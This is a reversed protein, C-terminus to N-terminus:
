SGQEAEAGDCSTWQGRAGRKILHFDLADVLPLAGNERKWSWFIGADLRLQVHLCVTSVARGANLLNTAVADVYTSLRAATQKRAFHHGRRWLYRNLRPGTATTRIGPQFDPTRRLVEVVQAM